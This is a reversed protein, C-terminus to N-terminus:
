NTRKLKTLYLLNILQFIYVATLVTTTDILQFCHIPCISYISRLQHSTAPQNHSPVPSSYSTVICNISHKLISISPERSKIHFNNTLYHTSYMNYLQHSLTTTPLISHSLGTTCNASAQNDVKLPPRPQLRVLSADLAGVSSPGSM